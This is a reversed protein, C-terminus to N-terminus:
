LISLELVRRDMGVINGGRRLRETVGWEGDIRAEETEWVFYVEFADGGGTESSWSLEEVGWGGVVSLLGEAALAEIRLVFENRGGEVDTALAISITVFETVAAPHRALARALPGLSLAAHYMGPMRVTLTVVPDSIARYAASTTFAEHM